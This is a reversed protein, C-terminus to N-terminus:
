YARQLKAYKAVLSREAELDYFYVDYTLGMSTTYSKQVMGRGFDRHVVEDGIAFDGEHFDEDLFAKYRHIFQSPIEGLFRSPLMPRSSGWLFRYKTATLYLFKKARTMGVYCLRREEELSEPSEKANLHPFLDEEMGVLFAVEFELGKGNHLTMLRLSDEFPNKEDSSSKLSLEELFATLSPNEAREEWDHAKTELERLNGYREDYTEQDEKLVDLIRSRDITESILESLPLGAKVVERLALVISVYETLGELQKKTVKFSIERDVIKQCTSFIDLELDISLEHLKTITTPGIGRKPLNITRTFSLFDAGGLVIRLWALLDKIEKRHYFSLGGIIIYPLGRRLLADEFVRSQFNTRYFIVCEKLPIGKAHHKAIEDVVFDVEERDSDAIYLGIKEGEGLDSWLNKEYRGSNNEILANAAKLISNTSRYNQELSVVQGGLFDKEFNLINQVNAGRWSYISQDPDGVAFVNHHKEALLRVLLYQAYNTDQYEDILLFNWRKQFRELIDPHEKFLKVALFLLDDFDLANYRKLSNQYLQYVAQLHEEEDSVQKPELLANKANSIGSRLRKSLGKEDKINLSALCQKILKNSDDDDYISFDSTFGISSITERLIRACLSHFTCTLVSAHAMARVREQMEEAAKNTFTVAVIESSPVGMELLHAIRSTVIRTKGSGAGALVLMPGDIHEVAVQQQPNLESTQM